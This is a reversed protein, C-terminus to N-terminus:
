ANIVSNSFIELFYPIAKSATPPNANLSSFPNLLILYKLSEELPSKNTFSNVNLSPV